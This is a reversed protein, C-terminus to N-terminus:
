PEEINDVYDEIKKVRRLTDEILESMDKPVRPDIYQYYERSGKWNPGRKNMATEIVSMLVAETEHLADRKRKNSVWTAGSHHGNLTNSKKNKGKLGFWSVYVWRERLEDSRHQKLRDFLNANGMGAQGVYISKKAEDFLVYIGIQNRFDVITKKSGKLEGKLHGENKGKGRRGWFIKSKRWHKGFNEIALM